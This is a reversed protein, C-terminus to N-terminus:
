ELSLQLPIDLKISKVVAKEIYKEVCDGFTGGILEAKDGYVVNWSRTSFVYRTLVEVEKGKITVTTAFSINVARTNNIKL